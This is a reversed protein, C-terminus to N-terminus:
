KKTKAFINKNLEFSQESGKCARILMTSATNMNARRNNCFRVNGPTRPIFTKTYQFAWTCTFLTKAHFAFDVGLHNCLLECVAISNWYASRYSSNPRWSRRLPIAPNQSRHICMELSKTMAVDAVGRRAQLLYEPSCSVLGVKCHKIFFFM